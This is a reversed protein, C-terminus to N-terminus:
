RKGGVCQKSNVITVEQEGMLQEEPMEKGSVRGFDIDTIGNSISDM